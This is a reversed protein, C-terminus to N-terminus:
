ECQGAECQGAPATQDLLSCRAPIALSGVREKREPAGNRDWRGRRRYPTGLLRTLCISGKHNRRCATLARREAPNQARFDLSRWAPDRITFRWPARLADRSRGHAVARGIRRRCEAPEVGGDRGQTRHDRGRGQEGRARRPTGRRDRARASRRFAALPRRGQRVLLRRYPKRALCPPPRSRRRCRSLHDRLLHPPRGAARRSRSAHASGSRACLKRSQRCAARPGARELLRQLPLYEGFPVLHAKDYTAVIEGHSVIGMSNFVDVVTDDAGRALRPTGTVLATNPGLVAAIDAQAAPAEELPFPIAAEPWVVHTVRNLGPESSLSLYRMFISTGNSSDGILRQDVRAQVIRLWVGDVNRTAAGDLRAFGLAFLLVLLGLLAAPIRLRKEPATEADGLLAFSAAALTTVLSLGYIGVFATTQLMPLAKAWGYGFLNWPFGTLVHGRLWESLSWLGAFALVRAPGTSWFARALAATLAAFVGLGAPLLVAVFPIMWAFHDADVLFAFGIWYLGCLFFGFGFGFGAIAARRVGRAGEGAGDILWVFLPLTVFLVPVAHLPALAGASAGGAVVALLFRRLPGLRRVHAAILAVHHLLARLPALASTRLTQVARVAGAGRGRGNM